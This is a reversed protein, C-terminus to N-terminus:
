VTTRRLVSGLFGQPRWLLFCILIIFAIADQWQSGLKWSGFHLAMGLLLAGVAIGGVSGVGGAIVVVVGMLMANLGMTPTMGVDLAILIGAAAVLASGLAFAKLIVRDEDIGYIVALERDCAVARAERGFDTYKSIAWVALMALIAIGTGWIQVEVVYSGGVNVVRSSQGVQLMKVYSGFVLAILNQIVVFIGLSSLLLVVATAGRRRAPRYVCLEMLAGLLIASVLAIVMALWSPQKLLVFACYFAYSGIVLTAAHAFHFFRSPGYIVAFSTGVLAFTSAAVLGNIFVQIFM